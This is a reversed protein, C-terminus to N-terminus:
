IGFQSFHHDMHKQFQNSWEQATMPGFSVSEKGEFEKEGLEQTKTIYEVLKSKETEFAREDSIVFEPATRSNKSYPKSSGTVIRKLFLKLLTKKFKSNHVKTKGYAIDYAVNVHALMQAANMKGWLPQSKATLKELRELNVKTTEPQFINPLKM